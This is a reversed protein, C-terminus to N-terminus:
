HYHRGLDEGMAHLLRAHARRMEYVARYYNTEASTMLTIADMVETAIAIGEQYRVRDIRLNEEAQGIADRAVSARARADELDRLHMEVEFRIDDCLKERQEVLRERRQRAKAVEAKTGGGSYLNLSMGLLLSWNGEHLLYRNQTFSYGGQAVFTPAYESRKATEELGTIRLDHELIMVEPRQRVAADWLEELPAVSPPEGPLDVAEMVTRLPRALITNVRSASIAMKNQIALLRQRADARRVEANLLDNKTIVGEEYLAKAVKLHSELREVERRAVDAMKGAELLDFYAVVFDLAVANRIRATDLKVAEHAEKSAEYFSGRAGFDYLVQQLSVEYSYYSKESTYFQGPGAIVGPQQSLFTQGVSANLSPLLRARAIETDKLAIQESAAYIRALRNQEAAIRLGESITLVPGSRESLDSAHVACPSILPFIFFLTVACIIASICPLGYRMKFHGRM